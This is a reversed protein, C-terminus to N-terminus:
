CVPNSKELLVIKLPVIMNRSLKGERVLNEISSDFDEPSNM